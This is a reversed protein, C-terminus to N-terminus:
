FLAFCTKGSVPKHLMNKTPASCTETMRGDDPIAAVSMYAEHEVPLILSIHICAVLHIDSINDTSCSAYVLTTALVQHHDYSRFMYHLSLCYTAYSPIQPSRTQNTKIKYYTTNKLGSIIGSLLPSSYLSKSFFVSMMLIIFIKSM